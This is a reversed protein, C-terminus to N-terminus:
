FLEPYTNLYLEQLKNELDLIEYNEAFALLEMVRLKDDTYNGDIVSILLTDFDPYLKKLDYQTVTSLDLGKFNDGKKM